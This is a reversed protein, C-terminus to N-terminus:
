DEEMGELACNAENLFPDNKPLLQKSRILDIIQALLDRVLWPQEGYDIQDAILFMISALM